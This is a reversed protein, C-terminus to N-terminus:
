LISPIKVAKGQRPPVVIAIVSTTKEEKTSKTPQRNTM